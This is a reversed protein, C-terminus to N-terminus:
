SGYSNSLNEYTLRDSCLDFTVTSKGTQRDGIILNRQGLGISILSDVAKLDSHLPQHVSTRHLISPARTETSFSVTLGNEKDTQKYFLVKECLM